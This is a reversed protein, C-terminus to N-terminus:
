ELFHIQLKRHIRMCESRNNQDNIGMTELKKRVTPWGYKNFVQNASMRLAPISACMRKVGPDEPIRTPNLQNSIYQEIGMGKVMDVDGPCPGFSLRNIVHLANEATNAIARNSTTPEVPLAPRAFLIVAGLPAITNIIKKLM